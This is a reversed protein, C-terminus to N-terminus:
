ICLEDLWKAAEEEAKHLAVLGGQFKTLPYDNVIHSLSMTQKAGCACNPDVQIDWKHHCAACSGHNTRFHNLKVWIRRPLDSGPVSSSPDDVLFGNTVGCCLWETRWADKLPLVKDLNVSWVPRRSSLRTAPPVFIDTRIPLKPHARVKNILSATAEERRLHPPAIGSLVPLWPVFTSRVCGSILRMTSNLQSDILNTRASRCWVPACYEAVSFCLALASIRLTSTSAGWTSGALKGLLNNRSSIKAATKKLHDHFSLSRDFTVGLYVPKPDHRIRHGDLFINLEKNSSANHLHFVTSVTM